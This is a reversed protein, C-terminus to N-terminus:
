KGYRYDQTEVIKDARDIRSRTVPHTRLMEPTSGGKKELSSLKQFFRVMGRPDFHARAAYSIGRRDAEYEDDRSYSLGLLDSALGAANQATSGRLV